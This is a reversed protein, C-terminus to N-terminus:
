MLSAEEAGLGRSDSYVKFKLKQGVTVDATLPSAFDQKGIFVKGDRKKASEHEISVDPQIWGFSGKWETVTGTHLNESIREREDTWNMWSDVMSQMASWWDEGQGQGKGRGKPKAAEAKLTEDNKIDVLAQEAASQEAKQKQSSLHGAWARKGWEDPLCTIQVTAQYQMGIKNCTYVTEGKQLFRKVIRMALSNLEMKPTNAPNVEGAAIRAKKAAIEEPTLVKPGPRKKADKAQSNVQEILAANATVAQQAASKEAAKQDVCLHGAYEQGSLCNLKVIAQFQMGYKSVTYVIDSKTLPRKCYKQLFEVLQNKSADLGQM